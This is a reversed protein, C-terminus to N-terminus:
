TMASELRALCTSKTSHLGAFMLTMVAGKGKDSPGRDTSPGADALKGRVSAAAAATGPLGAASSAMNKGPVGNGQEAGGALLRLMGAAGDVTAKGDPSIL